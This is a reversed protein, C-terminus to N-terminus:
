CSLRADVVPPEEDFAAALFGRIKAASTALELRRGALELVPITLYFEREWAPDALIDREVLAPAPLGAAARAGLITALATRAEDCLRCEPKGYLVLAPLATPDAAM